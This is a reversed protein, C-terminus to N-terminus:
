GGVSVKVSVSIDGQRQNNKAAEDNKIQKISLKTLSFYEFCAVAATDIGDQRHKYVLTHM